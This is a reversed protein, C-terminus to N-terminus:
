FYNFTGGLGELKLLKFRSLDTRCVCGTLVQSILLNVLVFNYNLLITSYYLQTVRYGSLVHKLRCDFGNTLQYAVRNCLILIDIATLYSPLWQSRTEVSM